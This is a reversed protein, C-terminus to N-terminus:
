LEEPPFLCRMFYELRNVRKEISEDDLEKVKRDLLELELVRIRRDQQAIVDSLVVAMTYLELIEKRM